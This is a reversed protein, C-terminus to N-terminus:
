LPKENLFAFISDTVAKISSNAVIRHYGVGSNEAAIQKYFAILPETQQRYVQLRKLVTKERDDTRQELPEGTIDDVGEQQPPNNDIHYVRGSALHVRRGSLRGVIDDDEVYLEILVEIDIEADILAQAQPITRPFGDFLFGRRCDPQALRKEILTIMLDDPVLGGQEMIQKAILGEKTQKSVETRLMDGTSIPPIDFHKCIVQSQTGKGSGPPGLLIINM